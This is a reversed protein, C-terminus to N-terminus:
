ILIQKPEQVAKAQLEVSENAYWTAIISDLTKGGNHTICEFTAYCEFASLSMSVISEYSNSVKVDSAPSGDHHGSDFLRTFVGFPMATIKINYAMRDTNSLSRLGESM